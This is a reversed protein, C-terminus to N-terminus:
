EEAHELFRSCSRAAAAARPTYSSRHRPSAFVKGGVTWRLTAEKPFATEPFSRLGQLNGKGGQIGFIEFINFTTDPQCSTDLPLPHGETHHAPRSALGAPPSPSVAEESPFEDRPSEQIDRVQSRGLLFPLDHASFLFLGTPALAPLGAGQSLEGQAQAGRRISCLAPSPAGTGAAQGAGLISWCSGPVEALCRGWATGSKSTVKSGQVVAWPQPWPQPGRNLPSGGWGALPLLLLLLFLGMRGKGLGQKHGFHLLPM